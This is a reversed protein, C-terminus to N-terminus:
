CTFQLYISKYPDPTARDAAAEMTEDSVEVTLIDEDAQDITVDNMADSGRLVAARLVHATAAM